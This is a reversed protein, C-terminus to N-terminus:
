KRLTQLYLVKQINKQQEMELMLNDYDKFTQFEKESLSYDDV